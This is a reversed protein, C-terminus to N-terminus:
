GYVDYQVLVEVPEDCAEQLKVELRAGYRYVHTARVSCNLEDLVVATLRPVGALMPCFVLHEITVRQCPSFVARFTGYIAERGDAARERTQQQRVDSSQSVGGVEVAESSKPRPKARRRLGPPLVITFPRTTKSLRGFLGAGLEEVAIMTWLLVVAALSNGPLVASTAILVLAATPGWEMARQQWSKGPAEATHSWLLRAAAAWLVALAGVALLAGDGLPAAFSGTLRRVMLWASCFFLAGTLFGALWRLLLATQFAARRTRASGASPIRLRFEAPRIAEM